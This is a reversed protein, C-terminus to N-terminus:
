KESLGLQASESVEGLAWRAGASSHDLGQQTPLGEGQLRRIHKLNKESPFLDLTVNEM